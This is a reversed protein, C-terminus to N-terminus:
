EYTESIGVKKELLLKSKGILAFRAGVERGTSYGISCVESVCTIYAGGKGHDIRRKTEKDL